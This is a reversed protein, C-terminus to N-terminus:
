KTLMSGTNGCTGISAELAELHVALMAKVGCTKDRLRKEMAPVSSRSSAIHKKSNACVYNSKLAGYNVM